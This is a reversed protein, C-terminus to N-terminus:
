YTSAREGVQDAALRISRKQKIPPVLEGIMEDFCIAHHDFHEATRDRDVRVAPPSVREVAYPTGPTCHCTSLRSGSIQRKSNPSRLQSYLTDISERRTSVVWGLHGLAHALMGAPRKQKREKGAQSLNALAAVTARPAGLRAPPGRKNLSIAFLHCRV